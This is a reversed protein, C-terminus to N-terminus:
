LNRKYGYFFPLVLKLNKDKYGYFNSFEGYNKTDSYFYIGEDSILKKFSPRAKKKGITRVTDGNCAKELKKYVGKGECIKRGSVPNRLPYKIPDKEFLKKIKLWEECHKKTIVKSM